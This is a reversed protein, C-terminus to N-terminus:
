ITNKIVVFKIKDDHMEICIDDALRTIISKGMGNWTSEDIGNKYKSLTWIREDGKNKSEQEALSKGLFNM